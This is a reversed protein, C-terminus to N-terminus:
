KGVAKLLETKRKKPIDNWHLDLLAGEFSYLYYCIPITKNPYNDKVKLYAKAAGMQQLDAITYVGIEYLRNAITSGINKAGNLATTAKTKTKM